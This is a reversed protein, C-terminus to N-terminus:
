RRLALSRMIRAVPRARAWAGLCLVGFTRNIVRWRDVIRCFLYGAFLPQSARKTQVLPLFVEYGHDERLREAAFAERQPLSRVVGWIAPMAHFSVSRSNRDLSTAGISRPGIWGPAAGIGSVSVSVSRAINSASALGISLARRGSNIPATAFSSSAAPGAATPGPARWRVARVTSRSKQLGGRSRRCPRTPGRPVRLQGSLPPEGPRPARARLSRSAGEPSLRRSRLARLQIAVAVADAQVLADGLGQLFKLIFDRDAIAQDREQAIRATTPQPKVM